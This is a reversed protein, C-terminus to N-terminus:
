TSQKSGSSRPSHSDQQQFSREQPLRPLPYKGQADPIPVFTSPAQPYPYFPISQRRVATPQGNYPLPAINSYRRGETIPPQAPPMQQQYQGSMRRVMEAPYQLMEGGGSMRREASLRRDGSLRRREAHVYESPGQSRYPPVPNYPFQNPPAQIPQYYGPYRMYVGYPPPRYVPPPYAAPPPQSLIDKREKLEASIRRLPKGDEGVSNKRTEELNAHKLETSIRTDSLKRMPPPHYYAGQAPQGSSIPGRFLKPPEPLASFKLSGHADRDIKRDEPAPSCTSKKKRRPHQKSGDSSSRKRKPKANNVESEAEDIQALRASDGSSKRGEPNVEEVASVSGRKAIAADLSDDVVAGGHSSASSKRRGPAGEKVAAEDLVEPHNLISARRGNIFRKQYMEPLTIGKFLEEKHEVLSIYCNRITALSVGSVSVIEKESCGSVLAIGAAAVSIPCKGSVFGMALAKKSVAIGAERVEPVLDLNLCFRDIFDESTIPDLGVNLSKSVFRVTRSLQKKKLKTLACIEKYTCPVGQQRCAVFLCAATVESVTTGGSRLLRREEIDDLLECARKEVHAELGHEKVFGGMQVKALALYDIDDKNKSERRKPSVSRRRGPQSVSLRKHTHLDEEDDEDETDDDDDEDIKNGVSDESPSMSDSYPSPVSLRKSDLNGGGDPADNTSGLDEVKLTFSPVKDGKEESKVDEKEEAQKEDVPSQGDGGKSRWEEEVEVQKEELLVHEDGKVAASGDKAADAIEENKMKGGGRDTSVSVDDSEEVIDLHSDTESEEDSARDGDNAKREPQGANSDGEKDDM